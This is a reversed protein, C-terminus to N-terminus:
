FTLDLSGAISFDPLDYSASIYGSYTKWILTNPSLIDALQTHVGKMIRKKKKYGSDPKRKVFQFSQNCNDYYITGACGVAMRIRGLKWHGNKHRYSVITGHANSRVGITHLAVKIKFKRNNNDFLHEEKNKKITECGSMMMMFDSMPGSINYDNAAFRKAMNEDYDFLTSNIYMGSSTLHYVDDGIKFSYDSNFITNIADDFTLDIDDPDAGSFDNSLWTTETSEIQSRKSCFGGFLKEFDRFTKSVDFNNQDDVDDMEDATLDEYQSEYNDNYTDDDANLQDIVANADAVSSFKLICGNTEYTISVGAYDTTITGLEVAADGTPDTEYFNVATEATLNGTTVTLTFPHDQNGWEDSGSHIFGTVTVDSGYTESLTVRVGFYNHPGSQPNAPFAEITTQAHLGSAFLLLSIM